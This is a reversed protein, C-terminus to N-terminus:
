SYYAADAGRVTDPNRETVIGSDNTVFHGFDNEDVFNGVIRGIKCCIQGHRPYPMNMSIIRGRVLETPRGNDPMLAYEEATLLAEATAM